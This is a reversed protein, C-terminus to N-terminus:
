YCWINMSVTKIYVYCIAATNMQLFRSLKNDFKKGHDGLNKFLFQCAM